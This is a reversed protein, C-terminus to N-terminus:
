RCMTLGDPHLCSMEIPVKPGELKEGVLSKGIILLVQCIESLNNKEDVIGLLGLLDCLHWCGLSVVEPCAPAPTRTQFFNVGQPLTFLFGQTVNWSVKSRKM